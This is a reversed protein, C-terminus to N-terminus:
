SIYRVRFDKNIFADSQVMFSQDLSKEANVDSLNLDLKPRPRRKPPM